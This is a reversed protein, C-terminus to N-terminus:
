KEESSACALGASAGLDPLVMQMFAKEDSKMCVHANPKGEEKITFGKEDIRLRMPQMPCIEPNLAYAVAVPDFVTPTPSHNGTNAVWQDYLLKINAVLPSKDAFLKERDAAELHIQTSDLPMVFIPVGSAFLKAADRPDRNINWEADPPRHAGTKGDDYGRDISGGMLVVRQVKRFTQPDRDIAAGINFLPGIAILTVKGPHQRIQELLANIGDPHTKTPSEKAYAAQTMVNDTESHVGATVPIPETNHFGHGTTAFFRDLLRARLETDGFATSVGLIKVTPNTLLLGVAFVDDIDDGIDTDVWVLQPSKISPSASKHTAVSPKACQASLTAVGCNAVVLAVLLIATFLANPHKRLQFKFAM